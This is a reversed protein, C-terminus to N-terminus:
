RTSKRDVAPNYYIIVGGHEMSHVLYGALIPNPYYGGQQPFPYHNGSTPPDTDYQIVTGVPVHTHGEDPFSQIGPDNYVGASFAGAGGGTSSGGGGCAPLILVVALVMTLRLMPWRVRSSSLSRVVRRGIYSPPIQRTEWFRPAVGGGQGPSGGDKRAACVLPRTNRAGAERLRQRNWSWRRRRRRGRKTPGARRRSRGRWTPTPSIPIRGCRSRWRGATSAKPDGPRRRPRSASRPSPGRISAWFRGRASRRRPTEARRAPSSRANSSRTSMTSPNGRFPRFSVPRRPLIVPRASSGPRSGRWTPTASSTSGRRSM